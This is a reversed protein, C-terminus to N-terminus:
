TVKSTRRSNNIWQSVVKVHIAPNFLVLHLDSFYTYSSMVFFLLNFIDKRCAKNM